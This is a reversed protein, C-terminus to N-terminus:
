AFAIHTQPKQFFFLYIFVRVSKLHAPLPCHYMFVSELGDDSSTHNHFNELKDEAGSM